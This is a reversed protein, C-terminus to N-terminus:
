YFTDFKRRWIRILKRVFWFHVYLITKQLAKTNKILVLPTRIPICSIKDLIRNGKPRPPPNSREDRMHFTPHEFWLRSLRDWATLLPLSLKLALRKAIPTLTMPGQLHGNYVFTGHWLLHPGSFFWWIQLYKGAITFDGFSYFFERTPCFVGFLYVIERSWLYITMNINFLKPGRRCVPDRRASPFM